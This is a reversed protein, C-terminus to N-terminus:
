DDRTAKTDRSIRRGPRSERLLRELDRQRYFRTGSVTRLPRLLGAAEWRKLTYPHVGIRRAAEGIRVFTDLTWRGFTRLTRADECV